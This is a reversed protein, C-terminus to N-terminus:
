DRSEYLIAEDSNWDGNQRARRGGAALEAVTVRAANGANGVPLEYDGGCACGSVHTDCHRCYCDPVTPIMNDNM